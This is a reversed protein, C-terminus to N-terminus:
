FFSWISNSELKNQCQKIQKEYKTSTKAVSKAVDILWPKNKYSRKKFGGDGEHYALYQYYADDKAIGLRKSHWVVYWSIFNVVDTFDDRSVGSINNKEQYWQWTENKVQGFGYASSSRLWPITGFIKGRPPKANSAFHSEQHIFALVLSKPVGWKKESNRVAKYWSVNEDLVDCINNVEIAPHSACNSLFLVLLLSLIKLM